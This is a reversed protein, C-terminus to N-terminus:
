SMAESFLGLIKKQRNKEALQKASLGANNEKNPDAGYQLLLQIQEVPYKRKVAHFLATNGANDAANVNAGNKLFWAAVEFRKWNFAALFPTDVGNKNEIAAGYKKFLGAAKVDDNWAIAFMCNDPDAGQKLLYSYLKENRGRTYAYWLPTAFFDCGESKITHISNINMGAKLLLQLIQLSTEAKQADDSTGVGCLYHLANKGNNEQWDIWEPKQQLLGKTSDLDLSIIAKIFKNM